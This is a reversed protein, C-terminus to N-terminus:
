VNYIVNQAFQLQFSAAGNLITLGAGCVIVTFASTASVCNSRTYKAVDRRVVVETVSGNPQEISHVNMNSKTPIRGQDSLPEAEHQRHPTAPQWFTPAVDFSQCLKQGVSKFILFQRDAM